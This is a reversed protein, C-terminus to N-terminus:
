QMVFSTFYVAELAEPEEGEAEIIKRIAALAEARLAEKAEQSSVQEVQKNGFLLLLDNRIIPSNRTLVEVMLPDRTMLQVAIQLFRSNSGPEFNVVFPPDLAVFQAPLKPEKKAEGKKKKEKKKGKEKKSDKAHEEDAAEEDGGDAEDAHEEGSDGHPMLFWAAAGGGLLLVAAAIIIILKKGSKKAPAAGDETAKSDTKKADSM